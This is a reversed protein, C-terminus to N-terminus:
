ALLSLQLPQIEKLQNCMAFTHTKKISCHKLINKIM